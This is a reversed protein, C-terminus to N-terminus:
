LHSINTQWDIAVFVFPAVDDHLHGYHGVAATWTCNAMEVQVKYFFNATPTEFKFTVLLVLIRPIVFLYESEIISLCPNQSQNAIHMEPHVETLDRTKTTTEANVKHMLSMNAGSM